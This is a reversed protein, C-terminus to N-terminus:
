NLKLSEAAIVLDKGDVTNRMTGTVSLNRDIYAELKDTLLLRKTDVYAFRRGSSDVLQYDYPPNLNLLRKALVLKGAFVRPLEANNASVPAPRGVTMVPATPAPPQTAVDFMPKSEPTTSATNATAGTAIFGQLPKELKIQAWDSNALGVLETKDGAAATTMVPSNKNPAAHISAGERVDLGKTFDHNNVYAVFPGAVEVRKWGTPAEGVPKINEGAKLRAIIPAKADPQIFVATDAAVTEAALRAAIFAFAGVVGLSRLLRSLASKNKM